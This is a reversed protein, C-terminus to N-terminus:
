VSILTRVVVSKGTKKSVKKILFSKQSVKQGGLVRGVKRRRGRWTEGNSKIVLWRTGRREGKEVM